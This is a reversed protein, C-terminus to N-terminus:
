ISAYVKVKYIYNNGGPLRLLWPPMTAEHSEHPKLYQEDDYDDNIMM